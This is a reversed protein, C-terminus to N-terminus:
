FNEILDQKKSYNLRYLRFREFTSALIKSEASVWVRRESADSYLSFIPNGSKSAQLCNELGRRYRNFIKKYKESSFDLPLKLSLINEWVIRLHDQNFKPEFKIEVRINTRFKTVQKNPKRNYGDLILPQWNNIRDNTLIPWNNIYTLYEGNTILIPWNNINITLLQSISVTPKFRVTTLLLSM